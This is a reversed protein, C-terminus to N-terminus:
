VSWGSATATDMGDEEVGRFDDHRKHQRRLKAKASRRLMDCHGREGDCGPCSIPSLVPIKFKGHQPCYVSAGRLQSIEKSRIKPSKSRKKTRGSSKISEFGGCNAL